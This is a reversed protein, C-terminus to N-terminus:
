KQKEINKSSYHTSKRKVGAENRIINSRKTKEDQVKNFIDEPIIAPNCGIAVFKDKEGKNTYRKSEPFGENYTKYAIVNGTYKENSLLNEITRKSWKTKGTPSVIAHHELQKIIGIISAGNLYMDFIQQVIQAEDKQIQLNGENDHYYGYCKRRLLQADGSEVKRLIGWSINKSRNLSEEQAVGELLSILFTNKEDKTHIEENEFYVDVNCSRLTNITKLSITSNRGFRSISKTLIIDIKGNESDHIMRQFESRNTTNSGSKIDIYIDILRWNVKAATLQTLYSIQNALSDLQEQSRTSVRCYIAVRYMMKTSPPIVTVNRENSM